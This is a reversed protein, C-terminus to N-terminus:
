IPEKHMKTIIQKWNKARLIFNGDCVENSDLLSCRFHLAVNDRGQYQATKTTNVQKCKPCIKLTM